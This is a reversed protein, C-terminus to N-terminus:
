RHNSAPSAPRDPVSTDPPYPIVRVAPLGPDPFAEDGAPATVAIRMQCKPCCVSEGASEPEFSHKCNPCTVPTM